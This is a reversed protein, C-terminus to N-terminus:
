KTGLMVGYPALIKAIHPPVVNKQDIGNNALKDARANLSRMVHIFQCPIGFQNILQMVLKKMALLYENRVQYIHNMQRVLLESDSHIILADVDNKVLPELHILACVLALYEAQNNTKAGLFYGVEIIPKGDGAIFISVPHHQIYVAIAVM